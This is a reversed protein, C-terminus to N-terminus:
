ISYLGTFIKILVPHEDYAAIGTNDHLLITFIPVLKGNRLKYKITSIYIHSSWDLRREPQPINVNVDHKRVYRDKM